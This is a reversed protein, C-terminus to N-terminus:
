RFPMPLLRDSKLPMISYQFSSVSPPIPTFM